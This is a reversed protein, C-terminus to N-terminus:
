REGHGREFRTVPWWGPAVPFDTRGVEGFGQRRYYARLRANHEQCDPRLFPRGAGAAQEGAWDLLAAGIGVGVLTCRTVLHHVYAAVPPQAGWVPKEEWMLRLGGLVGREDRLVFWEREDVQQAYVEARVEGERWQGIGRGRQWRAAENRLAVLAPADRPEAPRYGSM